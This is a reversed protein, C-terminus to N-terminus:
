VGAHGRFAPATRVWQPPRRRRKGAPTETPGSAAAGNSAFSRRQSRRRTPRTTRSWYSPCTSRFCRRASRTASGREPQKTARRARRGVGRAALGYAVNGLVDLHPFLAYEQFVYAVERRYAALDAGDHHLERGAVAVRGADPRTLGAVIRLLTSKGSGSPGTLVTVGREFRLDVDLVFERLAKRVVVEIM